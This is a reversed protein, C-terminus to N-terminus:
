TDESTETPEVVPVPKQARAVEIVAIERAVTRLEEGLATEQDSCTPIDLLGRGFEELEEYPWGPVTLPDCNAVAFQIVPIGVRLLAVLSAESDGTDEKKKAALQAKLNTIEEDRTRISTRLDDYEEITLHIQGM